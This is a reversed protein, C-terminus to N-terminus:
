MVNTSMWVSYESPHTHVNVQSRFLIQGVYKAHQNVRVRGLNLEFTLM